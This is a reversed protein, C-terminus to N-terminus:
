KNDNNVLTISHYDNLNIIVAPRKKIAKLIFARINKVLNSYANESIILEKNHLEEFYVNIKELIFDNLETLFTKNSAYSILGKSQLVPNSLIQKKRSDVVASFIFLGDTSLNARDRLVSDHVDVYYNDIYNKESPVSLHNDILNQGIFTIIEGNDKYIINDPNYGAKILAEAISLYNKYLGKIPFFYKPQLTSVILKIDEISAHMNRYKKDRFTYIKCNTKSLCDFANTAQLEIGPYPPALNIFGDDATISILKNEGAGLAFIRDYLNQGEATLIIVCREKIDNAETANGICSFEHDPLYGEKVGLRLLKEYLPDLVYIKRQTLSACEFIRKVAIFSNDFVSVIQRQENQGMYFNLEDSYDHNPNTFGPKNANISDCLLLLVDNDQRIKLLDLIINGQHSEDLPRCSDIDIICDTLYIINGQLCHINFGVTGPVSHKANIATVTFDQCAFIWDNDIINFDIDSFNSIHQNKTVLYEYTFKTCYVPATINNKLLYVLAGCQDYHCHSLFIGVIKKKNNILHEINPAVLQGSFENYRPNRIGADFILLNSESEVCYMNKGNENLGGLAFVNIKSSDNM